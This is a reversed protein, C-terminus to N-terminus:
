WGRLRVRLLRLVGTLGDSPAIKKGEDRSRATYSIPVEYVRAGHHLLGGTLEAEIEFGDATLRLQEYRERIMFKYCTYADTVYRDFLASATLSMIRNGVVYWFSYSAHSGFQRTGFVVEADGDLIPTIMTPIQAPDYELDADQVGLIDGTALSFGKRLASGKGRNERAKVVLVREAGPVWSRDIHDVAGDHSGDDVVILEWDIPMDVTGLRELVTRLTPGENYVPMVLSLKVHSGGPRTSALM